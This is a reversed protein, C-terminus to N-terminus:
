KPMLCADCAMAEERHAVLVGSSDSIVQEPQIVVAEVEERTIGLRQEWQQQREEAHQTWVIDM